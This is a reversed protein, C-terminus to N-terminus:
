QYYGNVDIIAHVSGSIQECRITLAGGSGLQSLSNNARTQAGRYNITTAGPVPIGSPFLKLAGASTSQTVTVNVSVARAATPIGCQGGVTFSRQTNAALAPGGFPGFSNRTDIVRCPTLTYFRSATPPSDPITTLCGVSNIEPLMQENICREHFRLDMNGYGGSLLHCYSMITGGLPGPNVTGGSYCGSEGGYCRDIPPSFCHTHPSGFNHGMEHASGVLDWLSSPYNGAIQVVAYAGGWHGGQSFDNECLVDLWAIGGTVPKGSLFLVTTRPYSSKPRNAHWWDGVEDLQTRTNTAAYPDASTWAQIRNVTLHVGVDRQYIVSTQGLLTTIYASMASVDGAFKALLEQDTEISIAADKIAAAATTSLAAVGPKTWPALGGGGDASSEPAGLPAQPLEDADCHWELPALEANRPSDARRLVHQVREETGAEPGVYALGASTRITAVLFSGPIGIYVRSDPEGDLWGVFHAVLPLLLSTEGGRGSVLIRADPSSVEFRELILDGTAGPAFPFRELRVTESLSVNKLRALSATELDLLREGLAEARQVALGERAPFHLPSSITVAAAPVAVALILGAIASRASSSHSSEARQL